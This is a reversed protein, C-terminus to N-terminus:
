LAIIKLISKIEENHIQAGRHRKKLASEASAKLAPPSPLSPFLVIKM